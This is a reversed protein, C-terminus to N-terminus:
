RYKTTPQWSLRGAEQLEEAVAQQLDAVTLSPRKRGQACAILAARVVANRIYGGTLDFGKALEWLDVPQRLTIEPPLMKQWMLLREEPEPAPFRIKFNIRRVFAEDVGTELNTTLIVIGDFTEMRQLLYNVEANAYRDTSSQVATRRAFLADAEDFVLVVSTERAEDFVRGLNKETEGVWKSVIRSVDIRFVDLGLSRGIIGAVMTKGVGPPGSFLASVGRHPLLKRGLGWGEALKHRERAFQEVRQCRLLIDEPLVVDEWDNIVRVPSAIGHLNHRARDLVIRNLTAEDRKSEPLAAVEAAADAIIGPRLPFKEALYRARPLELGPVRQTWLSVREKTGPLPLTLSPLDLADEIPLREDRETSFLIVGRHRPYVARLARLRALGGTEHEAARLSEARELYLTAGHLAADRLLTRMLWAAEREDEPLSPLDVVLLPTQLYRCLALATTKKGTKSPGRLLLAKPGDGSAALQLLRNRVREREHEPWALDNFGVTSDHILRTFRVLSEDLWRQGRFLYSAVPDPVSISRDLIGSREEAPFAGGGQPIVLHFFRLAATPDLLHLPPAGSGSDDMLCLLATGAEPRRRSPDLQLYSMVRRVRADVAAAGCLVLLALEEDSLRFRQAIDIVPLQHGIAATAHLRERLVSSAQTLQEEQTQLLESPPPVTGLLSFGANDVDTESFSVSVLGDADRSVRQMPLLGQQRSRTIQRQLVLSTWMLATRTFDDIDIFPLAQGRANADADLM